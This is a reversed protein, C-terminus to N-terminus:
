HKVSNLVEESFSPPFASEQCGQSDNESFSAMHLEQFFPPDPIIPIISNSVTSVCLMIGLSAM